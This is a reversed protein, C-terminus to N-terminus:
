TQLHLESKTNILKFILFFLYIFHVILEFLKISKLNMSFIKTKKKKFYIEFLSKVENEKSNM